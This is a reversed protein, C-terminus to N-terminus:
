PPNLFALKRRGTVGKLFIFELDHPLSFLFHEIYGAEPRNKYGGEVASLNMISSNICVSVFIVLLLNGERRWSFSNHWGFHTFRYKASYKITLSLLFLVHM